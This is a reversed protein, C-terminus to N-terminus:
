CAQQYMLRKRLVLPIPKNERKDEIFRDVNNELNRILRDQCRSTQFKLAQHTEEYVRKFSEILERYDEKVETKYAEQTAQIDVENLDYANMIIM